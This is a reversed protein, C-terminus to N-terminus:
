AQLQAFVACSQQDVELRDMQSVADLTHDM